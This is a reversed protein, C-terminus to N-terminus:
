IHYSCHFFNWSQHSIFVKGDMEEMVLRTKEMMRRFIYSGVWDFNSMLTSKEAGVCYINTYALSWSIKWLFFVRIFNMLNSIILNFSNMIEQKFHESSSVASWKSLIQVPFLFIELGIRMEVGRRKTNRNEFTYRGLTTEWQRWMKM